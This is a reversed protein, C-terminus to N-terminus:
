GQADSITYHFTDTGTFGTPPLYSFTGDANVSVTGGQASTADWASISFTSDPDSDNALLGSTAAYTVHPGTESTGVALATNGVTTYSDNGAIPSVQISGPVLTTNPDPTDSFNVGTGDTSGSNTITVTYSITDGPNVRGDGNTDVALGDVKTATIAVADPAARDTPAPALQPGAPHQAPTTAGTSGSPLAAQIPPMSQALTLLTLLLVLV